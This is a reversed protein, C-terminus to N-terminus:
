KTVTPFASIRLTTCGIPVLRLSVEKSGEPRAQPSWPTPGTMGNYLKWNPLRTGKAVFSLPASELTWPNPAIKNIKMVHFNSIENVHEEFLAYNWPQNSVMEQYARHDPWREDMGYAFLLFAYHFAVSNEHWRKTRLDM